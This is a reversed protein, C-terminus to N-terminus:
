ALLTPLYGQSFLVHAVNHMTRIMQTHEEWLVEKQIEMADMLMKLADTLRDPHYFILALHHMSILTKPSEKWKWYM